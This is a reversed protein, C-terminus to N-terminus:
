NSPNNLSEILQTQLQNIEGVVMDQVAWNKNFPIIDILQKTPNFIVFSTRNSDITIINGNYYKSNQLWEADALEVPKGPLNKFKYKTIENEKLVVEGSSTSTAFVCNNVREGGHPTKLESLCATAKGTSKNITYVTGKHFFTALLNNENKKDYVVSNIFAARMATPLYESPDDVVKVSKDESILAVRSLIIEKNLKSDFGLNFGNEWAWWEYEQKLSDLDYEFIADFGSSSVVIKSGLKNFDITHIYSFWPNTITKISDTIIYVLNESSIALTENKLAIGRPEKLSALVKEEKIKGKQISLKVIGGLSVARREVSGTKNNPNKKSALYRARIQQLDFSKVTLLADIQNYFNHNIQYTSLDVIQEKM